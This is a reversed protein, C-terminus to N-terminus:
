KGRGWLGPNTPREPWVDEAGSAENPEGDLRLGCDGCTDEAKPHWYRIVNEAEDTQHEDSFCDCCIIRGDHLEFGVADRSEAMSVFNPSHRTSM